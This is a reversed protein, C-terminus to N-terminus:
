YAQYIKYLITNILLIEFNLFIKTQFKRRFMSYTQKKM